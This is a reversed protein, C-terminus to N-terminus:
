AMGRRVLPGCMPAISAILEDTWYSGTPLTDWPNPLNDPTVYVWGAGREKSLQLITRMQQATPVNYVLHWFRDPTYNAVWGPASYSNQYTRVDGEFTVIVDAASLYCENTQMGPNLVTRV